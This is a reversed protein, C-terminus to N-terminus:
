RRAHLDRIFDQSSTGESIRAMHASVRAASERTLRIYRRFVKSQPDWGGYLAILYDPFGAAAMMTAGGYRLSHSAVRGKLGHLGMDDVTAKMIRQLSSVTIEPLGPVEYLKMSSTAGYETRTLHIWEELICVMCTDPTSQRVHQTLRGCGSQDNKAFKVNIYVRAAPTRGIDDYLIVQGKYDHFTVHHRRLAVATANKKHIHESCRLLGLIGVRQAVYLRKRMILAASYGNRLVNCFMNAKDMVGV